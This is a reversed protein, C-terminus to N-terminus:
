PRTTRLTDADGRVEDWWESVWDRIMGGFFILVALLPLVIAAIILLKELGEAGQEDQYIERILKLM